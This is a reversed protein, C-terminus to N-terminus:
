FDAGLTVALGSSPSAQGTIRERWEISLRSAVQPLPLRLQIEPGVDVREVKPQAGGSISLGMRIPSRALPSLLSFKGDVFLDGRRFGVVGAQAYSEVELSGVVPKPGLGGVVLLANANRAGQGFAIRREAAVSVPIARSPQWAIGLAGEPSAPHNFASSVRGYAAARGTAAPTLDYDLRLGAQSGGLRGGTIIDAPDASGARWLLWASGQWRDAKAAQASELPIAPPFAPSSPTARNAPLAAIASGTALEPAAMLIAAANASHRVSNASSTAGRVPSGSVTQSRSEFRTATAIHVPLPRAAATRVPTPLPGDPVKFGLMDGAVSAVRIIVWGSMLVVFFRVPRGSITSSM